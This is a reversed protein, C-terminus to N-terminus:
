WPSCLQVGEPLAPVLQIFAGGGTKVIAGVKWISPFYDHTLRSVWGGGQIRKARDDPTMHDRLWGPLNAWARKLRDERDLGVPAFMRFGKPFAFGGDLGKGKLKGAYNALYGVPRHSRKINSFGHTWWGREDPKPLKWGKPLWVIMHYHLAGREQLEAVWVARLKEGRRRLYERLRKVFGSIDRATQAGVEAYTLTIFIPDCRFGGRTAEVNLWNASAIVNYRMRRFRISRTDVEVTEGKGSPVTDSTSDTVLGSQARKARATGFQFLSGDASM